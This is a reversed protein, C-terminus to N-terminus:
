VGKPYFIISSSRHATPLEPSPVQSCAPDWVISSTLGYPLTRLFVIGLPQITLCLSPFLSLPYPDGLIKTTTHAHGRRRLEGNTTIDSSRKGIVAM